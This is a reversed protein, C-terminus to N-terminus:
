LIDFVRKRNAKDFVIHDKRKSSFDIDLVRSIMFQYKIAKLIEEKTPIQTSRERLQKQLNQEVLKLVNKDAVIVGSSLPNRSGVLKLYKLYERIYEEGESNLVKNIIAFWTHM